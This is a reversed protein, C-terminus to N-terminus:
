KGLQSDLAKAIDGLKVDTAMANAAQKMQYTVVSSANLGLIRACDRRTLGAHKVLMHAVVGKWIWNRRRIGLESVSVKAYKAVAKLVTEPDHRYAKAERFSVDQPRHRANLMETHLEEIWERFDDNGICRCSACLVSQFADDTKVLGTEVFQRYREAQAKKRGGMLALMPEYAVWELRRAQGIYSRYSSWPYARLDRVREVLPRNDRQGARVPNLHVYRSLRLLYDDGDVLRAHFRGQTLHGCRQHRLNFTVTHGTLVSQMFRSLNACPTELVLHFHNDMMCFLFIRVTYQKVSDALRAYLLYRDKDDMFINQRANGRVTVHYIAGPYEIRLPRAM